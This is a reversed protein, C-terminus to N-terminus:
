NHTLFLDQQFKYRESFILKTKRTMRTKTCILFMTTKIRGLYSKLINTKYYFLILDYASNNGISDFQNQVTQCKSISLFDYKM